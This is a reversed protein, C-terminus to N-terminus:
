TVRFRVFSLRTEHRTTYNRPDNQQVSGSCTAQLSVELVFQTKIFRHLLAVQLKPVQLM